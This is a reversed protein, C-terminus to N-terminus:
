IRISLIHISEWTLWRGLGLFFMKNAPMKTNETHTALPMSDPMSVLKPPAWARHGGAHGMTEKSESQGLQKRVSASATQVCPWLIIVRDNNTQM